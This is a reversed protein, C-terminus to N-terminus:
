VLICCEFSVLNSLPPFYCLMPRSQPLSEDLGFDIIAPLKGAKTQGMWGAPAARVFFLSISPLLTNSISCYDSIRFGISNTIAWLGLQAFAMVQKGISGLGPDYQLMCLRYSLIPPRRSPHLLHVKITHHLTTNQHRTSTASM